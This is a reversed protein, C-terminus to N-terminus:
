RDDTKRKLTDVERQLDDCRRKLARVEDDNDHVLRYSVFWLAVILLFQWGGDLHHWWDAFLRWFEEHELWAIM